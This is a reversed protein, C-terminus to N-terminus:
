EKLKDSLEKTLKFTKETLEVSLTACGCSSTILCNKEILNKDIGNSILVNKAILLKEFIIDFDLYKLENQNLTPVIGWAIKGGGELFRSLEDIYLSMESSYTYADFNIIDLGINLLNSWDCNGCCHIASIGGLKKIIDSIFKISEKVKDVSIGKFVGLRLQALTPEDIFIIPITDSSVSKIERIQWLAKLALYNTILELTKSNYCALNGDSIKVNASLTFPGTIQTKAYKPKIHRVQEIFPKFMCCFADSIFYKDLKTSNIDNSIELIEDRLFQLHSELNINEDVFINYEEVLIAPLNELYQFLMDENKSFNSLQPCFPIDYSFNKMFFLASEVSSHPLSGIAITQYNLDVYKSM